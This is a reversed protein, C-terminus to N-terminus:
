YGAHKSNTYWTKQQKRDNILLRSTAVHNRQVKAVQDHVNVTFIRTFYL